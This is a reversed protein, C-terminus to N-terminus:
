NRQRAPQATGMCLTLKGNSEQGSSQEAKGHGTKADGIM